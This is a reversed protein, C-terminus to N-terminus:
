LSLLSCNLYLVFALISTSTIKMAGSYLGILLELLSLMCRFFSSPISCRWGPM